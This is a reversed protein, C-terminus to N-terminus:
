CEVVSTRKLIPQELPSPNISRQSVSNGWVQRLKLALQTVTRKNAPNPFNMAAAEQIASLFERRLKASLGLYDHGFTNSLDVVQQLWPITSTLFRQDLLHFALTSLLESATEQSLRELVPGTKDLLEILTLHDGSCLVEVFASDLDGMYVFDKVCKWLSDKSRTGSLMDEPKRVDKNESSFCQQMGKDGRNQNINMAPERNTRVHQKDFNSSPSHSFTTDEWVVRNKTVVHLPKRSNIDVSPRPTSTSLRPSPAVGHTNKLLKSSGMDCYYSRQMLDSAIKDVSHELGLVKSQLMSLNDMTSGMFVQLLDMLSSQKNEIELLQKQISAIASETQSCCGHRGQVNVETITSGLSEREQLRESCYRHKNEVEDAASWHNMAMASNMLHGKELCDPADTVHKTEFSRTVPNFLSSCEPKEGIPVYGYEVDINSKDFSKTICSGESVESHDALSAIHAKPVAIEIHWDNTNSTHPNTQVHNPFTKKTTLPVKKKLSCTGIKRPAVDRWGGDSASTLDSYDGGGFNEKTSSGVESPEPSDPGPLRKWYLLAQLVSDRVPKVKDFRCSELSRICSAKSSQLLSGGSVAISELAVSAAKRTTWDSSKLAEQITSMAGSFAIQTSAGRAQIISTILEIVATKAMFHPNKLLKVIRTLMRSLVSVPPDNANHIVSALCLASGSQVQKNQEGLAEFLPKVIAVFVGDSEGRYNIMKCSLVGVVEVCADRVVSDPDKLRKVISTVMKAIYPSLLGEHFRVLTGMVRICEKRVASKQRSDTDIICSLFPAVGDPTLGQAIKELEDVGIQYTDRDAVKNLAIIVRHKLEFNAQQTNAKIPGKPKLHIHSKM